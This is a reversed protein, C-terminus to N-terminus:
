FNITFTANASATRRQEANKVTEWFSVRMEHSDHSKSKLACCMNVMWKKRENKAHKNIAAVRKATELMYILCVWESRFTQNLPWEVSCLARLTTAPLWAAFKRLVSSFTSISHKAAILHFPFAFRIGDDPKRRLYLKILNFKCKPLSACLLDFYTSQETQKAVASLM